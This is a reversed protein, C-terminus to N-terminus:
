QEQLLLNSTGDGGEMKRCKDDNVDWICPIQYKDYNAACEQQNYM